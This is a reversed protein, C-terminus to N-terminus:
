GNKNKRNQQNSKEYRKNTQNTIANIGIQM